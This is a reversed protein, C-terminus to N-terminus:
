GGRDETNAATVVVAIRRGLTDVLLQRKRGKGQKGGELGGETAHPATKSRQSEM